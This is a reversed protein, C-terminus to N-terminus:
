RRGGALDLRQRFPRAGAQRNGGEVRGGLRLQRQHRRAPRRGTRRREPEPEKWYFCHNFHQAAHVFIDSATVLESVDEPDADARERIVGLLSAELFDEEEALLNLKDVYAQHHGAHHQAFTDASIAPALAEPDFPLPPLLIQSAHSVSYRRLSLPTAVPTPLPKCAVSPSRGALRLGWRM